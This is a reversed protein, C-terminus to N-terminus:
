GAIDQIITYVYTQVQDYFYSFIVQFIKLSIILLILGVGIKLPLSVFFINMQPMLRAVFAIAVDVSLLFILAPAAFRLALNYMMTGGSVLTRGLESSMHGGSLPILSFNQYLTQILFYHSNTILFFLLIVLTWFQGIIPQQQDSSPDILNIVAMGMQYGVFTGAMTVAEFVLRGGFGITIGILVERAVALALTGVSEGQLVFSGVLTPTIIMTLVIAIMVKVKVSIARYGLIPMVFIM